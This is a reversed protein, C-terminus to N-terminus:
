LVVKKKGARKKMDWGVSPSGTFSLLKFREDEVLPAAADRELPLINVAGKPLDTKDIIEALLLCSLPTATAPKLVITNGSAIAPAIKHMALNLPFNFPSIGSIPGIPFRKIIGDRNEGKPSIDLQMVEGYIRTAEEAAITLTSIGREIEAKADKLSKGSELSLIESHFNINEKLGAAVQLLIDRRKYAPLKKTKEFAKQSTTIAKEIHEKNGMHITTIIKNNYPNIVDKKETSSLWEGGVYIKYEKKLM